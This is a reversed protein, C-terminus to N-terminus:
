MSFYQRESYWLGRTCYITWLGCYIVTVQPVEIEIWGHPGCVEANQIYSTNSWDGLGIRRM